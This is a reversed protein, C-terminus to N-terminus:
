FGPTEFILSLRSRRQFRSNSSCAEPARNLLSSRSSNFRSRFSFRISRISLSIKFFALWRKAFSIFQLVPKNSCLRVAMRHVQQAPQQTQQAAGVVVPPIPGARDNPRLFQGQPPAHLTIM